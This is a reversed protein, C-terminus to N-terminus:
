APHGARIVNDAPATDRPKVVYSKYTKAGEGVMPEAAILSHDPLPAPTLAVAAAPVVGRTAAVPATAALTITTILYAAFRQFPMRVRSHREAPSMGDASLVMILRTATRWRGHLLDMIQARVGVPVDAFVCAPRMIFVVKGTKNHLCVL